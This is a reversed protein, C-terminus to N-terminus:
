ELSGIMERAADADEAPVHVEVEGMVPYSSSQKSVVVADIGEAKLSGAIIEAKHHHGTRYVSVWTIGSGVTNEVKLLRKKRAQRYFLFMFWSGAFFSLIYLYAPYENATGPDLEAGQLNYAYAVLLTTFNNLFHVLMSVRIDGSWLYLYGLLVGLMMRPLFGYFQFHIFSFIAATLIVALHKRRLWHFLTRQLFGRFFLEEAFAALAGVILTNVVLDQWNHMVIFQKTLANNADEAARMGEEISKLFGPLHMQQNLSICLELLPTYAYFAFGALIFVL